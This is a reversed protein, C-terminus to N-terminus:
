RIFRSRNNPCMSSERRSDPLHAYARVLQQLAFNQITQHRRAAACSTRRASGRERHHWGRAPPESSQATPQKPKHLTEAFVGRGRKDGWLAMLIDRHRRVGGDRRMQRQAHRPLPPM